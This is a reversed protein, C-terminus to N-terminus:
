GQGAIFDLGIQGFGLAGAVVDDDAFAAGRALFQMRLHMRRASIRAGAGVGSPAPFSGTTSSSGSNPLRCPLSESDQVRCSKM